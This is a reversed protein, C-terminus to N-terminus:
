RLSRLKIKGYVKKAIVTSKLIVMYTAEDRDNYREIDSVIIMVRDDESYLVGVSLTPTPIADKTKIM